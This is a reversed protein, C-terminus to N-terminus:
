FKFVTQLKIVKAPVGAVVANCPVNKTVVANAGVIVNDGVIVNGIIKAGSYITVNDGIIPCGKETAGITVQQYITCNKGMSKCNIITSFGHMVLMGSGLHQHNRGYPLFFTCFPASLNLVKKLIRFIVGGNKCRFAVLKRHPPFLMYRFVTVINIDKKNYLCWRKIDAKIDSLIMNTRM